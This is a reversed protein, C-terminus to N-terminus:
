FFEWTFGIKNLLAIEDKYRAVEKMHWDAIDPWTAFDNKRLEMIIRERESM